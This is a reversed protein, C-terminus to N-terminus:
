IWRRAKCTAKIRELAEDNRETRSAIQDMFEEVEKKTMSTDPIEKWLLCQSLKQETAQLDQVVEKLANELENDGKGMIKAVYKQADRLLREQAQKAQQVHSEVKDFSLSPPKDCIAKPKKKWELASSSAAQAQGFKAWPRDALFSGMAEYQTLDLDAQGGSLEMKDTLQKTKGRKACSYYWMNDEERIDGLREAEQMAQENGHFTAHLMISYPVGKSVDTAFKTQMNTKFTAFTPSGPNLIYEGKTNQSFIANIFQTQFLRPHQSKAAGDSFMQRLEEPVSGSKMLRSWKRAKGTDRKADQDNPDIEPDQAESEEEEGEGEENEPDGKISRWDRTMDRLGKSKAKAKAGANQNSGSQGGKKTAPKKAPTKAKAKAKAKALQKSKASAKAKAKGKAKAKAEAEKPTKKGPPAAPATEGDPAKDEKNKEDELALMSLDASAPKKTTHRTTAMALFHKSSTQKFFLIYWAFHHFRTAQGTSEHILAALESCFHHLLM